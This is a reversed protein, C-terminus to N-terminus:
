GRLVSDRYQLVIVDEDEESSKIVNSIALEKQITKLVKKNKKGTVFKKKTHIEESNNPKECREKFANLPLDNVKLLMNRHITKTNNGGLLRITYVPVLDQKSIVKYIKKGWFSKLKGTGGKEVNKVLVRDGSIIDVYKIKSDYHKKNYDASKRIQTNAIKFAEKMSNEWSRVFDKYTRNKMDSSEMLSFMSDILLRSERGFMLFFPSYGMTKNVTSNYAFTLKPLFEKWNQKESEPITKLM